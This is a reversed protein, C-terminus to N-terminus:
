DMIMITLEPRKKGVLHVVMGALKITTGTKELLIGVLAGLIIVIGISSFM